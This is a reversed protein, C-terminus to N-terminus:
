LAAQVVALIHIHIYPTFCDTLTPTLLHSIVQGRGLEPSCVLTSPPPYCQYCMIGPLGKCRWGRWCRAVAEDRLFILIGRRSSFMNELEWFYIDLNLICVNLCTKDVYSNYFWSSWSICKNKEEMIDIYPYPGRFPSWDGAAGLTTRVWYRLIVLRM